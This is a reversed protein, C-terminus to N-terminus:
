KRGRKGCQIFYFVFFYEHKRTAFGGVPISLSGSYSDTAKCINYSTAGPVNTWSAGNNVSTQWQYVPDTYGASVNATLTFVSNDGTCVDVSDALGNITATVLPGCARFTIDDLLIDNGCGGPANNTM